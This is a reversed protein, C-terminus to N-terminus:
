EKELRRALGSMKTAHTISVNVDEQRGLGTDFFLPRFQALVLKAKRSTPSQSCYLGLEEM